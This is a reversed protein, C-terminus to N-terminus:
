IMFRMDEADSLSNAFNMHSIQLSVAVAAKMVGHNVVTLM